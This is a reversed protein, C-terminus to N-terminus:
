IPVPGARGGLIWRIMPLHQRGLFLEDGVLYAPVGSVGAEALQDRVRALAGPGESAAWALFGASDVGCADVVAAAARPDAADLELAWYRRFAEVLFSELATPAQARMWLWALHAADAPGDRYPQELILGQAEAYVAIERAIMRARHRRHRTGRDEDAGPASPPHLPQSAFPLWDVAIGLERGFAITPGLALCALPHRIDMAVTLPSRGLDAAVSM